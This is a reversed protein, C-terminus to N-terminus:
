PTAAAAIALVAPLGLMILGAVLGALILARVFPMASHITSMSGTVDLSASSHRVVPADPLRGTM